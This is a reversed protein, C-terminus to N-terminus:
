NSKTSKEDTSLAKKNDELKSKDISISTEQGKCNISIIRFGDKVGEGWFNVYGEKIKKEIENQKLQTLFM